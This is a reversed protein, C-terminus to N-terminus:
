IPLWFCQKTSFSTLVLIEERKKSGMMCSASSVSATV